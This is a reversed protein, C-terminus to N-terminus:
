LGSARAFFAWQTDISRNQLDPLFRTVISLQQTGSIDCCEDAMLAYNQNNLGSARRSGQISDHKGLLHVTSGIKILRDRNRRIQQARGSGLKDVTTNTDRRLTASIM